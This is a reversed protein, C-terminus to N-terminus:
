ILSTFIREKSIYRDYLFIIIDTGFLVLIGALGPGGILLDNAPLIFINSLGVVGNFTGHM